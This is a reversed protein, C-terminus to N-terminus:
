DVNFRGDSLFKASKLSSVEHLEQTKEDQTLDLMAIALTINEICIELSIMSTSLEATMKPREVGQIEVTMLMRTSFAMARAKVLLMYPTNDYYNVPMSNMM